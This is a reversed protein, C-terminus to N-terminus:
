CWCAVQHFLCISLINQMSGSVWIITRAVYDPGISSWLGLDSVADLGATCVARVQVAAAAGNRRQRPEGELEDEAADAAQSGAATGM